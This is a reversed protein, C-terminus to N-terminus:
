KYENLVKNLAELMTNSIDVKVFLKDAGKKEEKENIFNQPTFTEDIIDISFSKNNQLLGRLIIEAMEKDDVEKVNNKEETMTIIYKM